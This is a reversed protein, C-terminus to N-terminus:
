FSMDYHITGFPTEQDTISMSRSLHEIEEATVERGLESSLFLGDSFKLMEAAIQPTNYRTEDNLIGLKYALWMVQNDDYLLLSPDRILDAQGEEWANLEATVNDRGDMMGRFTLSPDGGMIAAAGKLLSAAFPGGATDANKIELGGKSGLIYTKMQDDINAASTGLVQLTLGNEYKGLACGLDEVGFGDPNSILREDLEMGQTAFGSVSKLKPMGMVFLLQSILYIGLDILPGHGAMKRTYFDTTFFPMDYGPRRRQSVMTLNAYYLHGLEGDAIMKRALRTQNNMLSSIQVHYKRGLKKACDIMMKADAYTAAEPKECYVDYGAKMAAISVPAHLNNHVCVDVTDIDDRKLMERFDAYLDKEDIGYREGFAKRVDERIEAGCVVKARFGLQDARKNIEDYVVMHRNSIMGLGIIAVRVEKM